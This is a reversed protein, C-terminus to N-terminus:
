AADATLVDQDGTSQPFSTYRSSAVGQDWKIGPAGALNTWKILGVWNVAAERAALHVQLDSGLADAIKVMTTLTFNSEEGSLVKTVYSPSTQLREALATQSLGGKEMAEWVEELFGLLNTEVKYALSQQSRRLFERYEDLKAVM